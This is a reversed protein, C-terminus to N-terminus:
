HPDANPFKDCFKSGKLMAKKTLDHLKLRLFNGEEINM